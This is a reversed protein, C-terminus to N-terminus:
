AANLRAIFTHLELRLAFDALSSWGSFAGNYILQTKRITGPSFIRTTPFAVLEDPREVSGRTILPTAAADSESYQAIGPRGKIIRGAVLEADRNNAQKMRLIGHGIVHNRVNMDHIASNALDMSPMSLGIAYVGILAEVDQSKKKVLAPDQTLVLEDDSDTFFDLTQNANVLATDLTVESVLDVVEPEQHEGLYGEQAAYAKFARYMREYHDMNFGQKSM